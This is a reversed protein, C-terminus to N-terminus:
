PSILYERRIEMKCKRKTIQMKFDPLWLESRAKRSVTDKIESNEIREASHAKKTDGGLALGGDGRVAEGRKEL